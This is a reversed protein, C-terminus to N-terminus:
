FVFWGGDGEFREDAAGALWATEEIEDLVEGGIGVGLAFGDLEDGPVVLEEADLAGNGDHVLEAIAFALETDEPMGLAGAFGEGHEEESLLDQALFEAVPGEDDDGVPFLEVVMNVLSEEGGAGDVGGVIGM